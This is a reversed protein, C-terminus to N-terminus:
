KPKAAKDKAAKRQRALEEEDLYRYTKVVADMTLSSDKGTQVNMDSLLVIRPLKAVDSAFAGLDHYNGTVKV